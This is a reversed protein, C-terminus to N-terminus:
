RGAVPNGVDVKTSYKVFFALTAALTIAIGVYVQPENLIFLAWCFLTCVLGNVLMGVLLTFRSGGRDIAVFNLLGAFIIAM